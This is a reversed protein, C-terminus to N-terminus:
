YRQDTSEITIRRPCFSAVAILPTASSLRGSNTTTAEAVAVTLYYQNLCFNRVIVGLIQIPSELHSGIRQCYKNCSSRATNAPRCGIFQRLKADMDYDYAAM